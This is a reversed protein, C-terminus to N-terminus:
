PGSYVQLTRQILCRLVSILLTIDDTPGVATGTAEEEEEEEGEADEQM